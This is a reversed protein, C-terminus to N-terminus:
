RKGNKIEKKGVVYCLPELINRYIRGLTHRKSNKMEQRIDLTRHRAIHELIKKVILNSLKNGKAYNVLPLFLKHYGVQYEYSLNDKAYRLWIKNRFSGFGYTENMMTCVIKPSDKGEKGRNQRDKIDQLKKNKSPANTVTGGSYGITGKYSGTEADFGYGVAKVGDDMGYNKGGQQIAGNVAAQAAAQQEQSYNGGSNQAVESAHQLGSTATVEGDSDKTVETMSTVGATNYGFTDLGTSTQTKTSTTAEGPAADVEPTTIDVDKPEDMETIGFASWDGTTQANKLDKNIKDIRAVVDPDDKKTKAQYAESSFGLSRDKDIGLMEGLKEWGSKKQEEGTGQVFGGREEAISKDRYAEYGGGFALGKTEGEASRYINGYPDYSPDDPSTMASGGKTKSYAQDFTLNNDKMEKQIQSYAKQDIGFEDKLEKATRFKDFAYLGGIIPVEAVLLDTLFNQGFAKRSMAEPDYMGSLRDALAKQREAEERARRDAGGDGAGAGGGTVRDINTADGLDEDDDQQNDQNTQDGLNGQFQDFETRVETLLSNNVETSGITYEYKLIYQGYTPSNTDTDQVMVQKFDPIRGTNPDISPPNDYIAM